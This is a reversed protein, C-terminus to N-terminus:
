DNKGLYHSRREWMAAENWTKFPLLKYLSSPYVKFFMQITESKWQELLKDDVDEASVMQEKTFQNSKEMIERSMKMSNNYITEVYMLLTISYFNVTM